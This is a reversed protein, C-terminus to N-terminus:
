PRTQETPRHEIPANQIDWNVQTGHGNGGLKHYMDYVHQARTKADNDAVGDNAVMRDQYDELRCLMLIRLAEDVLMDHNQRRRTEESETQRAHRAWQWLGGAISSAAAIILGAAIDTIIDTM